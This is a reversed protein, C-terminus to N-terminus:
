RVAITGFALGLDRQDGPPRFTREVEIGIELRSAAEAGPPLPFQLDFNDGGCAAVSAERLRAGNATVAIRLPGQRVQEAACSGNLELTAGERAPAGIRLSARKRMWRHTREAAYWGEGLLPGALLNAMDIKRPLGAAASNATRAWSETVDQMHRDVALVVFRREDLEERAPAAPLIFDDLNPGNAPGPVIRARTEPVLYVREVGVLPFPNDEIVRHYFGDDVGALLIAKGPFRAHAEAVRSVVERAEITWRWRERTLQWALPASVLLFEAALAAAAARRWGGSQWGRWLAYGGFAGLGMLPLTLYYYQLHGALPLVPALLLPFWGFLFAALFRKRATEWILFAGLALTMARVGLPVIRWWLGLAVAAQPPSVADRWYAWFVAPLQWGLHLAYYGSTQKPVLAMHLAVYVASIGLLPLTRRFYKRAFLFTYGLALAPYVANTEMVGFGVIFVATQAWWYRWRGTEIHRLLFHFAALLFLGCLVQMYGSSWTMETAMAPNAVWLVAAWFGVARSGTIRRLVSQLLALDAFFTLFVCVRYPLAHLGFAWHFVLFFLRESLPRFTGHQAPQFVEYWFSSGARIRDQIGLWLFDDGLFWSRLGYWYLVVCLLPPVGWYLATIWRQPIRAGARFPLM